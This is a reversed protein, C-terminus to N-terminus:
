SSDSLMLFDFNVEWTLQLGGCSLVVNCQMIPLLPSLLSPLSVALFWPHRLRAAADTLARKDVPPRVWGLKSSSLARSGADWDRM